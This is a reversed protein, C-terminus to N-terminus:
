RTTACPEGQAHALAAEDGVDPLPAGACAATVLAGCFRVWGLTQLTPSQLVDGPFAEFKSREGRVGKVCLADPELERLWRDPEPGVKNANHPLLSRVLLLRLLVSAARM